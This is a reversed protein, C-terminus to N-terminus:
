KRFGSKWNRLTTLVPLNSTYLEYMGPGFIDAIQGEDIFIAMQSERVTLQAGNKINADRDPFKWLIVDGENDVWDIIEIFEDKIFDFLGM